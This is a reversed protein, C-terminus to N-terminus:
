LRLNSPYLQVRALPLVLPFIEAHWFSAAEKATAFRGLYVEKDGRWVRALYPKPGVPHKLHVGFYGTKTDAQLLTLGEAEAQSRWM